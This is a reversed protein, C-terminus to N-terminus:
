KVVVSNSLASTSENEYVVKIRYTYSKEPNLGSDTYSGNESNSLLRLPEDGASRYILVRKVAKEASITWTLAAKDSIKQVKLTIKEVAVLTAKGQVPKSPASFLGSRDEAIIQYRCTKGSRVTNDTYSSTADASHPIVALPMYVTDGPAQRYVHHRVVDSSTSNVWTVTLAKGQEIGKIVPSVPPIVDPKDLTLLKSFASQNQRLDIARLKYYIKSDLTKINVSDVFVTDKIVSPYALVFEFNPRNAKYVRYGDLDKETNYTWRIFVHGASDILGALGSPPAPPISDVLEAYTVLQSLMEQTDNFVSVTYYNTLEPTEDTFSRATPNEVQRLLDKVGEPKSSRYIKFGKIYSNMEPPYLWQLEVKANDTVKNGIVTPAGTIPIMGKGSVTDGPPGTEGFANIGRVRYHYVQSNNELTDTKYAQQPTIDGDALQVAANDNLPAFHKGDTSKEVMYSNYIHNLYLMDWSLEVKKDNWKARLDLPPPLPQYESIGTFASATDPLFIPEEAPQVLPPVPIYVRYLYKENKKATRDSLYLGSLRAVTLSHDAAYLAFGFRNQEEQYRRAILHPNGGTPLSDRNFICEAAISVYRDAEYREWEPLPRPALPQPTLVYETIGDTLKGDRLLTYRKVVYGYRNGLQWTERDAPAWRLLISDPRPSCLLAIHRQQASLALPFLIWLLVAV